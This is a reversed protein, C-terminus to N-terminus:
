KEDLVKKSRRVNKEAQLALKSDTYFLAAPDIDNKQVVEAQLRMQDFQSTSLTIGQQLVLLSVLFLVSKFFKIKM